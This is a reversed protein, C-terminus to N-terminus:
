LFFSTVYAILHHMQCRNSSPCLVCKNCPLMLFSYCLAFLAEETIEYAGEDFKKKREGSANTRLTLAPIAPGM